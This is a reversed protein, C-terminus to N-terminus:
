QNNESILEILKDSPKEMERVLDSTDVREGNRLAKRIEEKIQELRTVHTIPFGRSQLYFTPHLIKPFYTISPIGMVAAELAMTEGGTLVLSANQYLDVGLVPIDPVIVREKSYEDIIDSQPKYRAVFVIKYESFERLLFELIKLGITLPRGKSYSLYYAAFGEEPRFVIYKEGELGLKKLIEPDPKVSDIWELVDVGDYQHIREPSIYDTFYTKPIAKTVILETSLTLALKLAFYSHPTDNICINKMGLGFAVRAAEPSTFHVALDPNINNEEFYKTISLAKELSAKLKGMLTKGGYEGTLIYDQQLRKLVNITADYKRATLIYDHGLKSLKRGISTFLLAHKPTNVDFWIFM